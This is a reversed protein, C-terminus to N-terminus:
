VSIDNIESVHSGRLVEHEEVARLDGTATTARRIPNKSQTEANTTRLKREVNHGGMRQLEGTATNVRRMPQKNPQMEATRNNVQDWDQVFSTRRRRGGTAQFDAASTARRMPGSQPKETSSGTTRRKREAIIRSTNSVDLRGQKNGGVDATRPRPNNSVDTDYGENPDSNHLASVVHNNNGRFDGYSKTNRRIQTVGSDQSIRSTDDLRGQKNSIRRSFTAPRYPNPATIDGEAWGQNRNM